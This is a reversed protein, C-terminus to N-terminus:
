DYLLSAMILEANCLNLLSAKRYDLIETQEETRGLTLFQNLFIISTQNKTSSEGYCLTDQTYNMQDTPIDTIRFFVHIYFCM